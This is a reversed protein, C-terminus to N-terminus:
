RAQVAPDMPIDSTLTVRTGDFANM